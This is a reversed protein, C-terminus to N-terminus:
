RRWQAGGTTWDNNLNVTAVGADEVERCTVENDGYAGYGQWGVFRNALQYTDRNGVVFNYPGIGEQNDALGDNDTDANGAQILNYNRQHQTEHEATAAVREIGWNTTGGIWITVGSVAHTVDFPSSVTSTICLDTLVFGNSPGHNAGLVGQNAADVSWDWRSAPSGNRDLGPIVNDKEWYYYWNANHDPKDGCGPLLILCFLFGFYIRSTNM